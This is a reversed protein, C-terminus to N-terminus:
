ESVLMQGWAQHESESGGGATPPPTQHNLYPFPKSPIAGFLEVALRNAELADLSEAFEDSLDQSNRNNDGTQNICSNLWDLHNVEANGGLERPLATAPIFRCLRDASVLTVQLFSYIFFAEIIM